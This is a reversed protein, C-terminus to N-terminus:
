MGGFSNSSNMAVAKALAEPCSPKAQDERLARSLKHHHQCILPGSLCVRFCLSHLGSPLQSSAQQGFSCRQALGGDTDGGIASAVPGCHPHSATRQCPEPLAQPSARPVCLRQRKIQPFGPPPDCTVMIEEESEQLLRKM